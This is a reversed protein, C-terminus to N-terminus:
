RRAFALSIGTQNGRAVRRYQASSTPPLGPHNRGRYDGFGRGVPLAKLGRLGKLMNAEVFKEGVLRRFRQQAIERREIALEGAVSNPSYPPLATTLSIWCM